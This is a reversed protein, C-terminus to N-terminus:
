EVNGSEDTKVIYVNSLNNSNSYSFGSLIFGNDSTKCGSLARDNGDGGFTKDWILNGSEDIKILWNNFGNGEGFSDTYGILAYGDNSCNIIKRGIDTGTGGFTNSWQQNGQLDVKIVFVDNNGSGYSTTNGIMIYGDITSILHRSLDIDTGGYTKRWNENGSSDVKLLWADGNLDGSSKTMGTVLLSGDNEEIVSYGFDDGNGGYTKSWVKNGDFDVKMLLLMNFGTNQEISQGCIIYGNDNLLYIYHAEQDEDNGYNNYWEVHGSQNTKLILIDKSGNINSVTNGIIIIGYDSSEVLMNARDSPSFSLNHMWQEAGSEDIKILLIDSYENGSTSSNGACVYGGDFLEIISRGFDYNGQEYQNEFLFWSTGKEVNSRSKLGWYDTIEIQYYLYQNLSIGQINYGNLNNQDSEYIKIENEMNESSSQFISYSFFDREDNISWSLAFSNGNFSIPWLSVPEPPSDIVYYGPGITSYGYLDTVRIFYWTPTTPNFNTISFLTDNIESKSSLSTKFGNETDSSLLEYNNFDIEKSSKFLIEMNLESYEISQISVGQPISNSNDILVEIPTSMSGNENLDEAYLSIEHITSDLFVTTNWLFEYPPITDSIGSPLSDIYLEVFKISDNDSAIGTVLFEQSVIIYETPNTLFVSPPSTDLNDGNCSFYLISFIFVTINVKISM